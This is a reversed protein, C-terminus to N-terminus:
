AEKEIMVNDRVSTKIEQFNIFTATVVIDDSSSMHCSWVSVCVDECVSLFWVSAAAM